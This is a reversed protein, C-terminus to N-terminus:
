YKKRDPMSGTAVFQFSDGVTQALTGTNEAAWALDNATSVVQDGIGEFFDTAGSKSGGAVSELESESLEEEDKVLPPLTMSFQYGTQDIVQIKFTSPVTKGTVERIAEHIDQNCLERFKEDRGAKETVKVFAAQVEETTWESM